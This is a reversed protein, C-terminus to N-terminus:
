LSVEKASVVLPVTMEEGLLMGEASKTESTAMHMVGNGGSSCM